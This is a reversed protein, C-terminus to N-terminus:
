VGTNAAAGSAPAASSTSSQATSSQMAEKAADDYYDVHDGSKFNQKRLVAVMTAASDAPRLLRGNQKMDEFMTRVVQDTKPDALLLDIMPTDLPGPAYNLVISEPQEVALVRFVADRAAKGGCYHGWTVMPQLALISSINIYVTRTVPFCSKFVSNLCIVHFLNLRYYTSMEDIDTLDTIKRGDQGLTGANHIVVAVSHDGSGYNSRVAKEFTEQNATELDISVLEVALGPRADRVISKTTELDAMNRAMLLLTSGAGVVKGMELALARGFGRSAGTILVFSRVGIIDNKTAM